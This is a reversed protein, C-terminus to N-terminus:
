AGQARVDPRHTPWHQPSWRAPSPASPPPPSSVRRVAPVAVPDARWHWSSKTSSPPPMSRFRAPRPPHRCSRSSRGKVVLARRLSAGRRPAPLGGARHGHRWQGPPALGPLARQGAPLDERSINPLHQVRPWDDAGRMLEAPAAPAPTGCTFDPRWLAPSRNTGTRGLRRQLGAPTYHTRAPTVVQDVPETSALLLRVNESPWGWSAPAAGAKLGRGGRRHRRGDRRHHARGVHGAAARRQLAAGRPRHRHPQPKRELETAAEPPPIDRLRRAGVAFRVEIDSASPM